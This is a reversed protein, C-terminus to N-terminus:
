SYLHKEQDGTIRETVVFDDFGPPMNQVWKPRKQKLSQVSQHKERFKTVIVDFIEATIETLKM